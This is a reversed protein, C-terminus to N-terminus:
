NVPFSVHFVRQREEIIAILKGEEQLEIISEMLVSRLQRALADGLLFGTRPRVKEVLMYTLSGVDERKPISIYFDDYFIDVSVGYSHSSELSANANIKRLKNQKGASRVASSIAYRAEVGNELRLKKNFRESIRFLGEKTAATGFRYKDPVNYFYYPIDDGKLSVLRRDSELDIINEDTEILPMGSNDALRLHHELLYKRLKKRRSSSLYDSFIPFNQIVRQEIRATERNFEVIADISLRERERALTDMFIITIVVSIISVITTALLTRNKKSM